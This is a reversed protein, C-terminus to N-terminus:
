SDTWTQRDNGAGKMPIINLRGQTVDEAPRRSRRSHANFGPGTKPKRRRIREINLGIGAFNSDLYQKLRTFPVEENSLPDKTRIASFDGWHYRQHALAMYERSL